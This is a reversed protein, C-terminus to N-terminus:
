CHIATLANRNEYGVPLRLRSIPYPPDINNSSYTNMKNDSFITQSNFFLFAYLEPVRAQPM